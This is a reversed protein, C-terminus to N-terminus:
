LLCIVTRFYKEIWFAPLAGWDGSCLFSLLTRDNQAFRRCLEILAIATVPHLPYIDKIKELTFYEKHSLKSNRISDYAEEAWCSLNQQFYPEASQKLSRTIMELMQGTSEVFSIDEFRGQIKRWEQRQATSLGAAYEDFAQHLCVWLYVSDIEALQQLLFIDGKHPHHSMFDLNKGFEDIVIIVPKKILTMIEKIIDLLFQSDIGKNGKIKNVRSQLKEKKPIDALNLANKIARLVSNNVPEYSATVPIQLFGQGDVNNIGEILKDFLRQDAEQLKQRANIALITKPNATLALLYNIFSSKGMGYPGTLSWASIKEGLLADGFRSLAERTKDTIQYDNIINISGADRELNISRAAEMDPKVYESIRNM